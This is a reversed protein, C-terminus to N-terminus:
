LSEQGCVSRGQWEDRSIAYIVLDGILDPTYQVAREVVRAKRFGLREPIACSKVNVVDPTIEIQEVMLQRFAYDVICACARTMIGKGRCAPVLGYDIRATSDDARGAPNEGGITLDVMGVLRDQYWIGAAIGKGRAAKDLKETIFDRADHFWWENIQVASHYGVSCASLDDADAEGLQRVYIDESVRTVDLTLM